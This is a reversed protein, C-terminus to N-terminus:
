LRNGIERFTEIADFISFNFDEEGELTPNDGGGTRRIFNLRQQLESSSLEDSQGTFCDIIEYTGDPLGIKIVPTAWDSQHYGSLSNKETFKGDNYLIGKTPSWDEKLGAWAIVAKRETIIDQAKQYDLTKM